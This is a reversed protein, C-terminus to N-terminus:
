WKQQLYNPLMLTLSSRLRASQTVGLSPQSTIYCVKRAGMNKLDMGVERTVGEGFRLNAAAVEFAYEKEVPLAEPTAFRRMQNIAQLANHAGGTRCGHCPCATHQAAYILRRIANRSALPAM